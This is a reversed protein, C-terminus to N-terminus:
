FAEGISLHYEWGRERRGGITLRSLKFGFDLRLPGIPSDYRVGFGAAARLRALDLDGAHAFVNGADVFGVLGLDRGLLQTAVTRLEANLVVVANGGNSLGNPNLIEPVGLRDIQFGRVTTGGGAFFRQSAPLDAVTQSLPLGDPGVVPNGDADEIPVTREFGRAMGIQARSAFVARRTDDLPRFASVQFFTKAYGVESGLRRAAIELDATMLTGTSPAIQDDRRDWLVGSSLISLRVQPFLRDILSREEEDIGVDFLRSFDLAYRNSLTIRPTLRRLAQATLAQRAFNFLTRSAQESTVSVLLTTDTHFARQERFTGTVRYETFGFRRTADEADEQEDDDVTRPKLAVRAFLNVERNRGGLNRRGVEFFGRPSLELVDAQPDTTSGRPRRGVELGGGFGLTTAPLETLSVVLNATNDGPLRDQETISVQRFIGLELLRRQSELLASDGLPQGTELTLAERVAAESINERGLIVIDGVFVQPGEDISVTLAAERGDALWEPTLNVSAARFGRDRYLREIDRRDSIGYSLVYPSGPRLRMVARVEAEPVVPPSAFAFTVAGVNAQRGEVIGPHVAVLQDGGPAMGSIEYGTNAQVEYFGRRQYELVVRQGGAALLDTSFPDGPRLAFADLIVREPLSIDSGVEVAEVQYKPGHSVTYTIALGAGGDTEVRTFPARADQYGQARLRAEIRRRADELLDLDASGSEEIPVLDAADGPLADGAFNVQIRPGADVVLTVDMGGGDDRRLASARATAEYYRDGRLSEEIAAMREDILRQRYPAGVSVGARGIVADPDLPSDGAVALSAISALPGARVDLMLTARDPEHTEVTTARVVADLYGQEALLRATTAEIEAPREATPIGGFRSVILGRLVSEGIGTEGTFALSDIPHRPELRFTVAVGGPDSAALVAVNEFRAALRGLSARWDERRLPEGIRISVLAALQASADGRGEVEIHVATVPRGVYAAAPDAPQASAPRSAALMLLGVALVPLARACM